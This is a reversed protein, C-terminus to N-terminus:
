KHNYTYIDKSLDMLYFGIDDISIKVGKDSDKAFFKKNKVFKIFTGPIFHQKLFSYNKDSTPSIYKLELNYVRKIYTESSSLIDVDIIEINPAQDGHYMVDEYESSVIKYEVRALYRVSTHYKKGKFLFNFCFGTAFKEITHIKDSVSYDTEKNERLIYERFNM